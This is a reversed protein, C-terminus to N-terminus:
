KKEGVDTDISVKVTQGTVEDQFSFSVIYGTPVFEAVENNKGMIPDYNIKEEYSLIHGIKIKRIIEEMKQLLERDLQAKINDPAKM